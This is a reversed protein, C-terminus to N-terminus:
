KRISEIGVLIAIFIIVLFSEGFINYFSSLPVLVIVSFIIIPEKRLPLPTIQPMPKIWLLIVGFVFLVPLPIILFSTMPSDGFSNPLRMLAM